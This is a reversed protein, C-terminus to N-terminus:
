GPSDAAREHGTAGRAPAHISVGPRTLSWAGTSPRAGRPRTFQFMTNFMSYYPSQTAGRAPAHISVRTVLSRVITTRDRGERARSNFGFSRRSWRRWRGTAGRAPAHISVAGGSADVLHLPRAGRPRTFQFAACIAGNRTHLRRAGRPRTFQFSLQIRVGFAASTAGRAPAHISVM